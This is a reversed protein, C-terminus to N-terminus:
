QMMIPPNQPTKEELAKVRKELSDIDEATMRFGLKTADNLLKCRELASMSAVTEIISALKASVINLRELKKIDLSRGFIKSSLEDFIGILKQRAQDAVNSM